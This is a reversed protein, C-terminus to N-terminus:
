DLRHVAEALRRVEEPHHSVYLMPLRVEDRVRQLWPILEERRAQDLASLPEDFLLIAPQSLLARGIAVRQAEGGSLNGTRRRLLDGIGLLSVVPDLEFRPGDTAAHRGYLLNGRVDLHPFLRADQFVYGVRRRHPPLDIGRASDFLVRGDVEIRGSRPAVLGAIANLVTTKGSGSPGVLAIVRAPDEIRVHREFRGRKLEIDLSLVRHAGRGRGRRCAQTRAGGPDHRCAGAEHPTEKTM